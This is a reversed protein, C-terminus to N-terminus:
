SAWSMAPIALGLSCNTASFTPGLLSGSIKVLLCRVSAAGITGYFQRVDIATGTAATESDNITVWFSSRAGLTLDGIERKM